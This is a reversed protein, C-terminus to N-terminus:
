KFLDIIENDDLSSYGSSSLTSIMQDLEEPLENDDDDDDDDDSIIIPSSPAPRIDQPPATSTSPESTDPRPQLPPSNLISCLTLCQKKVPPGQGETPRKGGRYRVLSEHRMAAAMRGAPSYSTVDEVVEYTKSPVVDFHRRLKALAERGEAISEFEFLVNFIM